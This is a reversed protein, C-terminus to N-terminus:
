VFRRKTVPSDTLKTAKGGVLEGARNAMRRNPTTLGPELEGEM